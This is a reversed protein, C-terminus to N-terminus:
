PSGELKRYVAELRQRASVLGPRLQLVREFATAADEYRELEFLAEGLWFHGGVLDGRRDVLGQLQEVAEAARGRRVMIAAEVVRANVDGSDAALARGISREAGDLDDRLLLNEALATHTSADHPEIELARGYSRAAEEARRARTQAEGLRRFVEARDPHTEALAGLLDIADQLRGADIYSRAWDLRAEGTAAHQLAEALWPDRVVETSYRRLRALHARAETERGLGRLTLGLLQHAGPHDPDLALAAGLAAVAEERRGAQRLARGLGVHFSPDKPQLDVARRFADIAAPTEGYQVLNRGLHFHAPAYDPEHQLALRLKHLAEETRGWDEYLLGLLYPTRADDAGRALAQEYAAIALAPEANGHYVMGLRTLPAPDRPNERCAAAAERAAVRAGPPLLAWDDPVPVENDTGNCGALLVVSVAAALLRGM